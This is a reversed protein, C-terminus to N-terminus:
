FQNEWTTKCLQSKLQSWLMCFYYNIIILPTMLWHYYFGNLVSLFLIKTSFTSNNLVIRIKDLGKSHFLDLSKQLGLGKIGPLIACHLM